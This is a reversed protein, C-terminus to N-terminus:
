GLNGKLAELKRAHERQLEDQEAEAQERRIFAMLNDIEWAPRVYLAEMAGIGFREQLLV